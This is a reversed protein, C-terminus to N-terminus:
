QAANPGGPTPTATAFDGGDPLRAFSAGEPSDGEVWDVGDVWRGDADFLGLAEDGGLAFGVVDKDVPQVHRDGPALRLGDAFYAGSAADEPDDTFRWGTLDVTAGGANLVEFWDTPEGAAAVENILVRIAPAAPELPDGEAPPAGEAREAAVRDEDTFGRAALPDDVAGSCAALTTAALAALARAILRHV